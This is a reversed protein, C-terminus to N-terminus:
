IGSEDKKTDKRKNTSFRTIVYWATGAAAVIILPEVPLRYRVRVCFVIAAAATSLVTLHILAFLRRDRLLLLSLLWLVLVPGYFVLNVWKYVVNRAAFDSQRLGPDYHFFYYFRAAWLKATRGPHESIYDFAKMRLYADKAADDGAGEAERCTMIRDDTGYNNVTSTANNGLYLVFGSTLDFPTPIEYAFYNYVTRPVFTIVVAALFFGAALAKRTKPLEFCLWIALTLAPIAVLFNARANIALGAALGALAPLAVGKREASWVILGVSTIICLAYLTEPYVVNALYIFPPYVAAFAGAILGATHGFLRQALLYMVVVTLASLVGNALTAVTLSHGFLMYVLGLFVPYLPPRVLGLHEYPILTAEPFFPVFSAGLFENAFLVALKDYFQVDGWLPEGRKALVYAWRIFLAVSFLGTIHIVEPRRLRGLFGDSKSKIERQSLM